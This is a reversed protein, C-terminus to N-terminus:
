VPKNFMLSILGSLRGLTEIFAQKKNNGYFSNIFRISALVFVNLYFQISSKVNPNPYKVNWVYWGNRVVMKGYSYKNPRGEEDHHHELLANTNVYLQGLKSARLCFDLDEYLGYGEFYTSFKIKELLDKKFSSVGGMFFEVPYIKGSPPLYSISRGHSYPPMFGPPTGDILGFYKRLRFRIGESRYFGDISYINKNDEIEQIVEWNVENNIYGGIGIANPYQCYSKMLEEFYNSSLVTDDDLFCIINSRENVKKVGFNRQKTLGRDTEGVKYYSLNNFVENKLARNTEDNTSGDIILIENPYVTQEKVSQLLKVIAIPRMYTCIILSFQMM